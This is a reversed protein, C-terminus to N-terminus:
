NLYGLGRLSKYLEDGPDRLEGLNQVGLDRQLRNRLVSTTQPLGVALNALCKPDVRLDFLAETGSLVHYTYRLNGDDCTVIPPVEASDMSPMLSGGGALIAIGSGTLALCIFIKLYM